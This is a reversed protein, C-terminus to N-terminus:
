CGNGNGEIALVMAKNCGPFQWIIVEIAKRSIQGLVVLGFHKVASGLIHWM